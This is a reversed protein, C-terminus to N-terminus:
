KFPFMLPFRGNKMAFYTKFCWPNGRQDWTHRMESVHLAQRVLDPCTGLVGIKALATTVRWVGKPYYIYM